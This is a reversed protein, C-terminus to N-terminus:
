HGAGIKTASEPYTDMNTDITDLPKGVLAKLEDKSVSNYRKFTSLCKHGSVAMIRIFDHGQRRWNTIACHRLDHFHFDEIGARRCAADFGERISKIPTGSRNFVKVNPLGRPLAKFMQILEVALPILRGENTKTDEPRLRIFGEKLDVQGWTLNIIEAQRMATLYAVKVVQAVHPACHSLLREYEEQSLVRDRENNEKLMKLGQAPNREAKGNKVAKSFITKLCAIERNVTAPTTTRGHRTIEQLRKLRYSEITAPTIDKVLRAGFICVLNSISLRDRRYSKKAKVEELGLYWDALNKFRTKEDPNKKIYRGEARASLVERYRQEAAKKNPGIRERKRWGEQYWEIWWVRGSFKALNFGCPVRKEHNNEVKCNPCHKAKLSYKM